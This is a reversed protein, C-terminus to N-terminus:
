AAESLRETDSAIATVEGWSKLLADVCAPDFHRGKEAILYDRAQDVSWAKKYPRTSTLADFVDAVATIRGSLPIAEGSLGHPYGTGDFREHHALAIEGALRILVSSSCALIEGGCRAHEQMALREEATLPGAKLLISDAIGIKGIDHMPAALHIQASYSPDLGLNQAIMEAYRAMRTIHEGTDRDRLEAARALRLVIEEERVLITRTAKAVEEALWAAQDRLNRQAEALRLLNRVRAKFEAPDVPKHIFDSAGAELAELRVARQDSTTVMVIPTEDLHARRRVESIFSVGDLGPMMYDVLILDPRGTELAVLALRPDKFTQIQDIDLRNVLASLVMLNTETDDVIMITM